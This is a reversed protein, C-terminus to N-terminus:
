FEQISDYLYTFDKGYTQHVYAFVERLDHKRLVVIDPHTDQRAIDRARMAGKIEVTVGDVVFDPLYRCEKGEWFFYRIESCRTITKQHDLCYLLYALEWSSDCHVGKYRGKKGCTVIKGLAANRSAAISLRNRTEESPNTKASSIKRRTSESVRRGLLSQSRKLKTEETQKKGLQAAAMRARTEESVGVKKGKNGESIKKKHEETLVRKPRKKAAQSIRDRSEDSRKKGKNGESIKRKTADSVVRGARGCSRSCHKGKKTHEKNCTPCQKM